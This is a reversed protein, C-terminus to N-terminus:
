SNRDVILIRDLGALDKRVETKWGPHVSEALDKVREGHTEDIELVMRGGPALLNQAELLLCAIIKLGDAGGELATRPERKAVDLSDLRASPIYPLNACILDFEGVLAELLDGVLLDIRDVVNHAEANARAIEVVDLSRDSAIMRLESMEACLTVAICGSGTGVDVARRRDPYARLYELAAEILLETEPRPILVVPEVSFLRGYFWREGLVYPLAEGQQVREVAHDFAQKASEDLPFEPHALLWSRNRGLVHAMLTQADLKSTETVDRLKNAASQIAQGLRSSEAV